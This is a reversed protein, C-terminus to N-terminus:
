LPIVLELAASNLSGQFLLDMTHSWPATIMPAVKLQAVRLSVPSSPQTQGASRPRSLHESIMELVNLRAYISYVLHVSGSLASVWGWLSRTTELLYNPLLTGTGPLQERAGDAMPSVVLLCHVCVLLSARM